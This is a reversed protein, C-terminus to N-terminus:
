IDACDECFADGYEDRKVIEGEKLVEQCICCITDACKWCYLDDDGDELFDGCGLCRIEIDKPACDRCYVNGESDELISIGGWIDKGCASCVEQPTYCNECLIENRGQFAIEERNLVEECENCVFLACLTCTDDDDDYSLVASCNNCYHGTDCAVCYIYGSNDIWAVKKADVSDLCVECSYSGDYMAGKSNELCNNCFKNESVFKRRCAPCNKETKVDTGGSNKCKDCYEGSGSFATNCEACVTTKDDDGFTKIALYGLLVVIAACIVSIAGILVPKLKKREFSPSSIVKREEKEVVIMELEKGCEPCFKAGEGLPTNCEPCNM